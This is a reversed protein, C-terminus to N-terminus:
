RRRGVAAVALAMSGAAWAALVLYPRGVAGVLDPALAARIVTALSEFPLWEHATALWDPLREAPYIIPSFGLLGFILLMAIMNTVMPREIAHGIAYGLMTATFVSMAVAPVIALSVDLDIDYRWLGALLTVIATPVAVLLNVVYWASAAATRPVPLSFRFDYTDATKQQAVLQPAVALGLLVVTIAAVGTVLYTAAVGDLGPVLLGMGVVFGVGTLLQGATLVPIALRLDTLDWRLMLRFGRLWGGVGGRPAAAAPVAQATM